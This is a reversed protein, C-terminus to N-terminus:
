GYRLNFSAKAKTGEYLFFEAMGWQDPLNMVEKQRFELIRWQNYTHNQLMNSYTESLAIDRVAM